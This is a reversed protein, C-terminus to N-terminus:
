KVEEGGGGRQEIFSVPMWVGMLHNKPSMIGGDGRDLKGFLTATGQRLVEDGSKNAQRAALLSLQSETVSGHIIRGGKTM